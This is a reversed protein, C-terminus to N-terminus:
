PVRAFTIKNVGISITRGRRCRNYRFGLISCPTVHLNQVSNWGSRITFVSPISLFENVGMPLTHSASRLIELFLFNSIINKHIDWKCFINKFDSSFYPFYPLIENVGRIFYLNVACFKDFGTVAWGWQRCTYQVTNWRCQKTFTYIIYCNVYVRLYLLPRDSDM